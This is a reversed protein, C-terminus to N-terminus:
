RETECHADMFMSKSDLVRDSGFASAEFHEELHAYYGSCNNNQNM